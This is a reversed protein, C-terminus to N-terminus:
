AHRRALQELADRSAEFSSPESLGQQLFAMIDPSAAIATDTEHDVGPKVEGLRLLLEMEEYRAMLRRIRRAAAMHDPDIIDPMLRSLSELVNIAPFVGKEALTRSLVIHGDVLSRVEEAIPDDKVAGEALVMYLASISGQRTNGAREILRPLETYVSAPLGSRGVPEGAAISTERVARAFRTLSDVLLLVSKGQERFGEAIATATYAARMREGASRDSTAGVIVARRMMKPHELLETMEALERGREGILAFVVVDTEAALGIANMLTTKGCGPPAFVGMRQGKGFTLMGDIVRVGTPLPEVVQTRRSVEPGAARATVEVSAPDEDPVGGVPAGFGDLLRGLLHAGVRIGHPRGMPLVLTGPGIGETAGFPSLMAHHEHFGIVEAGLHAGTHALPGIRCMEGVRVSPLKAHVVPGSVRVVEGSVTVLPTADLVARARALAAHLGDFARWAPAAPLALREAADSM